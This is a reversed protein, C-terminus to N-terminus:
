CSRTYTLKIDDGLLTTDALSFAPTDALSGFTGAIMPQADSGLVKPAQYIILEDVLNAVIFAGALQGGAEILAENIETNGLMRLVEEPTRSTLLTEEGTFIQYAESSQIRGRRDMIVKIPSPLNTDRVDLRPNDALITSSSSILAGSRARLLQVDARAEEGTIWKSEGSKMAIRGDISIALKLRVFPLGIRMRKFFGANLREAEEECIGTIVEIGAKRMKEVSSVKPNPDLSAIIVRQPQAKIIADVCPPTKGYHSCPELTIYMDMGRANYNIQTLANIEAHAGGCKEHYGSAVIKDNHVIVCGVMPNPRTFFAGQAALELAYNMYTNMTSM